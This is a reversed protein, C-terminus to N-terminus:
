QLEIFIKTGKSAANGATISQTTVVGSGKVGVKYGANGLAYLADSLSM